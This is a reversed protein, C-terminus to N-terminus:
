MGPHGSCDVTSPETSGEAYAADASVHKGGYYMDCSLSGPTTSTATFTWPDSATTSGCNSQMVMVVPGVASATRVVPDGGPHFASYSLEIPTTDDDAAVVFTVVGPSSPDAPCDGDVTPVVTLGPAPSAAAPQPATPTSSATTTPATTDPAASPPATGNACGSTLAAAALVTMAVLASAGKRRRQM